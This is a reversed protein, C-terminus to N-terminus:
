SLIFLYLEIRNRYYWIRLNLSPSVLSQPPFVLSPDVQVWMTM